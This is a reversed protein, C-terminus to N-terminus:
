IDLDDDPDEDSDPREDDSDRFYVIEGISSNETVQSKETKISYGNQEEMLSRRGDYIQKAKDSEQHEFPLVVNSRDIQEKESLQLNFQVKPVLTQAMLDEEFSISTFTIGSPDAHVEESMLKVRGNRRKLHVRFKAKRLNQVLLFLGQQGSNLQTVGEVSAVISSMYELAANTRNEHIDSHLTWFACSVQEHSRISSLFGAISSLSVDRLLRTVSDIAICFRDKGEGVIGKGLELVEWLLKELNKVDRFVTVGFTSDPCTGIKGSEKLRHKWGLPDTYCDLIRVWKNLSDGDFGGNKLLDMYYSPSRSFAVIVIGRSQSKGALIFSYLQSLVHDFVHSSLPSLIFDKITLAPALEGELAGDRLVRCIAEAM